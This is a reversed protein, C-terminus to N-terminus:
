GGGDEFPKGCWSCSSAERSIWHLCKDCQKEAPPTKAEADEEEETDEDHYKWDDRAM